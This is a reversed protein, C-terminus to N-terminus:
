GGVASYQRVGLRYVIRMALYATVCWAFQAALERHATAVDIKRQLMSMTLFYFYRFPLFEGMRQAWGPLLDLPMVTGEFLLQFLFFVNFAGISETMWFALLGLTVKLYYCLLYGLILSGVFPLVMDRTLGVASLVGPGLWLLFIVVVPALFILRLLKWAMEGILHYQNFRLPRLLHKSFEGTRIEQSIAWEPHVNLLTRLAMMGVYYLMMQGPTYGGIQDAAGYASRWMLIMVLPGTVDFLFWIFSEPRYQFAEQWFMSLLKLNSRLSRM